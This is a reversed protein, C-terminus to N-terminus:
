SRALRKLGEFADNMKNNVSELPDGTKGEKLAWFSKCKQFRKREEANTRTPAPPQETRYYLAAGMPTGHNFKLMCVMDSLQRYSYVQIAEDLSVGYEMLLSPAIYAEDQKWDFVKEGGTESKHTGLIDLGCCEWCVAALLGTFDKVPALEAQDVFLRSVAESLKQLPEAGGEFVDLIRLATEADDWVRVEVGEWPFHLVRRGDLTSTKDLYGM